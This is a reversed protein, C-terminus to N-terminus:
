SPLPLTATRGGDLVVVEGTLFGSRDSAVYVALDGVDDAARRARRPSNWEELSTMFWGDTDTAPLRRMVAGTFSGDPVVRGPRRLGDSEVGLEVADAVLDALEPVHDVPLAHWQACRDIDDGRVVVRVNEAAVGGGVGALDVGRDRGCERGPGVPRPRRPPIPRGHQQAGRFQDAALVAVLEQGGRDVEHVSGTRVDGAAREGVLVEGADAERSRGRDEPVQPLLDPVVDVAVAVVRPDHTLGAALVGDDGVGRGVGFRQEDRESRPQTRTGPGSTSRRTARRGAGCGTSRDPPGAGGVTAPARSTPSTVRCSVKTPATMSSAADRRRCDVMSVAVDNGSM